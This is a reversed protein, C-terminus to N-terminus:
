AANPSLSRTDTEAAKVYVRPKTPGKENRVEIQGVESLDILIDQRLKRPLFRLTQALMHRDM